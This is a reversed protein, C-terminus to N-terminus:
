GDDLAYRERRQQDRESEALGRAFIVMLATGMVISQELAMVLGAVNVDDVPSLGWPRSDAYAHFLDSGTFALLIGLLGVTVKTSAMYIVPGIGAMHFRTRIPSLLHWWYLGGALTFSLHELVHVGAHRLAADYLAPVHWLWLLGAYAIVAVAPHALVGARRELVQVRRTVPRLIVKSLGLICLIPAADLLLIHGAMHMTALQQSLADVPSVLAVLVVLLGSLFSALRWVSASRAGDSRRVTRWRRVYVYGALGVALLVGPDFTWSYDARVASFHRLANCVRCTIRALSGGM